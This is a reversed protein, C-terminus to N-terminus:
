AKRGIFILFSLIVLFLEKTSPLNFSYEKQVIIFNPPELDLTLQQDQNEM